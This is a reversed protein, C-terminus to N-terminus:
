HSSNLRTSKRDRCGLNNRWNDYEAPDGRAFLNGNISGSGGIVRGRTWRQPKGNLNQQPETIYPWTVEPNNILNVVLLPVKININNDRDGAEILLVSHEGSASLREAVICGASGAGCVIFDFKAETPLTDVYM